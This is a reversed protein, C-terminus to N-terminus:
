SNTSDRNRKLTLGDDSPRIKALWRYVAGLQPLSPCLRKGYPTAGTTLNVAEIQSADAIQRRHRLWRRSRPDDRQLDLGEQLGYRDVYTILEEVRSRETIGLARRRDPDALAPVGRRYQDPHLLVDALTEASRLNARLFFFDADAKAMRHRLGDNLFHGTVVIVIPRHAGQCSRIHQVVRVGPFQDGALDEDAADVVVVDIHQWEEDWDLSANHDFAAVLEIDPRDSLAAAFGALTLENDDVLM